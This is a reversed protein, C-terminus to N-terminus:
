DQIHCKNCLSRQFDNYRVGIEEGYYAHVGWTSNNSVPNGDADVVPTFIPDGNIDVDQVGDGDADVPDQWQASSLIPSDVLLEEEQDWRTMNDWATAHARHCTLCMVASTGTAGGISATDLATPDTTGREIPVLRDFERTGSFDGTAVYGNYAGVKDAGLLANSAAPHRHDAISAATFGSHCNACWESIGTGYDAHNTDTEDPWDGFVGAYARAVPATNAFAVNISQQGGDYGQGGLLRYNGLVAGAPAVGGYSGSGAIPLTNVNNDKKGHPDHCSNCGLWGANYTVTGDSPASLLTADAAIGFDGAITNHGKNDGPNTSGRPGPTDQTIWWFDGGPTYASGDDSMARYIRNHCNLCTSSPDSGIMLYDPTVTGVTGGATVTAGDDSNHMTHCGDCHAVGGSHFAFSSGTLGLNLLGAGAIILYLKHTKKM